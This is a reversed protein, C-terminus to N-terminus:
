FKLWFEEAAWMGREAARVVSLGNRLRCQPLTITSGGPWDQDATVQFYPVLADPPVTMGADPPWWGTMIAVAEGEMACPAFGWVGAGLEVAPGDIRGSGSGTMNSVRVNRYSYTIDGM